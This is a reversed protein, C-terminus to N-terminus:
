PKTLLHLNKHSVPLNIQAIARYKEYFVLLILIQRRNNFIAPNSILNATISQKVPHDFIYPLQLNVPKHQLRQLLALFYGNGNILMLYCCYHRFYTLFRGM